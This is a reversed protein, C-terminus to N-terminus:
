PNPTFTRTIQPYATLATTNHDAHPIPHITVRAGRHTLTTACKTANAPVVDTDATGTHLNVPVRPTWDRCISDAERLARLYAGSPNLLKAKFAPTLLQDLASPLAMAIEEVQHYGDFLEEVGDVTFAERPDDYLGVTRNWATIFYGLYLVAVQPNVRGDFVAPLETKELDYPGAVAELAGLRFGPVEKNQLARGVSLTARGGQSFGTVLVDRKLQVGYRRSFIKAALLLDTSATTESRTDIYPHRGPGVGLGLYDPAVAVLGSGALMLAITRDPGATMSAVQNKTGNTGHLYEAVSLSGRRGNPLVVLGSATTPRGEPTITRYVVRYATVGNRAQPPNVFGMAKATKDVAAASLRELKVASVLQGRFAAPVVQSASAEAPLTQPTAFATLPTLALAAILAGATTKALFNTM